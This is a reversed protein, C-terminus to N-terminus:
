RRDIREREVLLHEVFTQSLRRRRVVAALIQEVQEFLALDSRHKSERHQDGLNLGFRRIQVVLHHREGDRGVVGSVAHGVCQHHKRIRIRFFLRPLEDFESVLVFPPSNEIM